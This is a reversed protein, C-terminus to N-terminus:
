MGVYWRGKDLSLKLLCMFPNLNSNMFLPHFIFISCKTSSVDLMFGGWQQVYFHWFDLLNNLERVTGKNGVGFSYVVVLHFCISPWSGGLIHNEQLWLLPKTNIMSSVLSWNSSINTLLDFGISFVRGNKTLWRWWLIKLGMFLAFLM